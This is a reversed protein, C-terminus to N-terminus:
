SGTRAHLRNLWVLGATDIMVLLLYGIVVWIALPVRGPLGSLVGALLLALTVVFRLAMGMLTGSVQARPGRAVSMIPPILGALAALLAISMGLVMGVLAPEGGIVRTPVYGIALGGVAGATSFAALRGYAALPRFEGPNGLNV